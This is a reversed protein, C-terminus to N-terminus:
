TRKERPNSQRNREPPAPRTLGTACGPKSGMDPRKASLPPLALWAAQRVPGYYRNYLKNVKVVKSM